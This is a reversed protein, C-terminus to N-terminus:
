SESRSPDPCPPAADRLRPARAPRRGRRKRRQDRTAHQLCAVRSAGKVVQDPFRSPWRIRRSAHTVQAERKKGVGGIYTVTNTIQYDYETHYTVQAERNKDVGLRLHMGIIPRRWGM